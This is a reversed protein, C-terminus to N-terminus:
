AQTEQFPTGLLTQTLQGGVVVLDHFAADMDADTVVIAGKAKPEREVAMITARRLLERIFAASGGESRAIVSEPDTLRLEIGKGYLSLLRRRCDADPLPIEIAQDIRGPRAALAPELEDPRNTTLVFLVDADESLGDMQNLLEFLLANAGVSQQERQTGILDVDELIITVPALARALRGCTEISSVGGGTLIMVTRDKMQSALYMASLTKGTGPPGHLLLGRKLHRQAQRLRAAHHVMGMTQRDLRQVVDAPLIIEDRGIKPLRHFQVTPQRHCDMELSLVHGRFAPAEAILKLLMLGFDHAADRTAGMIEVTLHPPYEHRPETVLMALPAAPTTIWYIARRVCALRKGDALAVDHFEVPGALFRRDASPLAFKALSPEEYHDNTLIGQLEYSVGHLTKLKEIALHLNPRDYIAVSHSVLVAKTPKVGLHERLRSSFSLHRGGRKKAM